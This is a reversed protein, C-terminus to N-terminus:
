RSGSRHWAAVQLHWALSCSDLRARFDVPVPGSGSTGFGVWDGPVTATKTRKLQVSDHIIQQFPLAAWHFPLVEEPLPLNRFAPSHATSPLSVTLWSTTPQTLRLGSTQRSDRADATFSL